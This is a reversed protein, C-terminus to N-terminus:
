ILQIKYYDTQPHQYSHYMQFFHILDLYYYLFDFNLKDREYKAGGVVRASRTIEPEFARGSWSLRAAACKQRAHTGQERRPTGASQCGAILSVAGAAAASALGLGGQLECSDSSLVPHDQRAGLTLMLMYQMSATGLRSTRIPTPPASRWLTRCSYAAGVLLPVWGM